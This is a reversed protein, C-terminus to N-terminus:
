PRGPAPPGAVRNAAILQNYTLWRMPPKVGRNSVYTVLSPTLAKNQRRLNAIYIEQPTYREHRMWRYVEPPTAKHAKVTVNGNKDTAAPVMTAAFRNYDGIADQIHAVFANSIEKTKQRAKVKDANVKDARGAAQTKAKAGAIKEQSAAKIKATERAARISAQSKERAGTLGALTSSVFDGRDSRLGQLTGQLSQVGKRYGSQAQNIALSQGAKASAARDLLEQQSLANFETLRNAAGQGERASVARYANTSPTGGLGKIIKVASTRAMKESARAGKVVKRMEPRAAVAFAVASNATQKATEIDTHRQDALAQIQQKAARIQPQYKAKGGLKAIAIDTANLKPGKAM